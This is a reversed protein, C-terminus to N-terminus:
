PGEEDDFAYTGRHRLDGDGLNEFVFLDNHRFDEAGFGNDIVSRRLLVDLDGDDDVDGIAIASAPHELDIELLRPTGGASLWVHFCSSRLNAVVIDDVADGDLDGAAVDVPAVGVDFVQSEGPGEADWKTLIRLRGRKTYDDPAPEGMGSRLHVTAVDLRGDGDFDGLALAMSTEHMRHRWGANFDGGADNRVLLLHGRGCGLVVDVLGDGDFDGLASAPYRDLPPSCPDDFPQPVFRPAAFGGAGDGQMVLMDFSASGWLMVDLHGDQDVDILGLLMIMGRDPRQLGTSILNEWPPGAGGPVVVVEPRRTVRRPFVLDPVGDGTVDGLSAQHHGEHAATEARPPAEGGPLM